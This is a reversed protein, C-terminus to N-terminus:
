RVPRSWRGNQFRLDFPQYTAKTRCHPCEREQPPFAPRSPPCALVDPVLSYPFAESCNKCDFVWTAMPEFRWVEVLGDHRHIGSPPAYTPHAVFAIPRRRYEPAAPYQLTREHQSAQDTGHFARMHFLFLKGPCVARWEQQFTSWDENAAIFGAFGLM